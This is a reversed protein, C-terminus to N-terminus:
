RWWRWRPRASTPTDVAGSATLTAVVGAVDRAAQVLDIRYRDAFWAAAQETTDSALLLSVVAAATPTLATWRGTREDLLAGGAATLVPHVEERLRWM